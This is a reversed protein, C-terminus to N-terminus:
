SVVDGPVPHIPGTTTGPSSVQQYLFEVLAEDTGLWGIVFRALRLRPPV